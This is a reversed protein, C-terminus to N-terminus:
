GAAVAREAEALLEAAGAARLRDGVAAGLGSPDAADGDLEDRIWRSGDPLGVFVTLRLGAGMGLGAGAGSAGAGRGAGVTVCHAGIPTHCTAELARVVAREATLCTLADRDTLTAAAQAVSGDRASGGGAGGAEGGAGGAEGRARGAGSGGGGRAELVLCGQGPAPVVRGPDLPSGEDARGLRQLGAHALVIADFDGDALRRLRTDVNGRLDHVDLDPRLALLAARRRLSGTGVVAGEALDDLSGAGCLTDRADAREPVGVIRLGGPLESPVDKASHVAIDIEDALLADEIEKVFRTKDAPGPAAGARRGSVAAQRREDGSTTIPVLEVDGPLREAVWRAQALALASGRTGLRIV